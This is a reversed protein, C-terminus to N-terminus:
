VLNMEVLTLLQEEFVLSSENIQSLHGPPSVYILVSM